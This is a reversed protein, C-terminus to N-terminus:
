LSELLYNGIERFRLRDIYSRAFSSSVFLQFAEGLLEVVVRFSKLPYLCVQSNELVSLACAGVVVVVLPTRRLSMPLGELLVSPAHTCTVKKLRSADAKSMQLGREAELLDKTKQELRASLGAITGTADGFGATVTQFSHEAEALLKGSELLQSRPSTPVSARDITASCCDCSLHRGEGRPFKRYIPPTKSRCRRKTLETM